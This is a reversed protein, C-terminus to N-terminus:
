QKKLCWCDRLNIQQCLTLDKVTGKELVRSPLTPALDGPFNQFISSALFLVHKGKNQDSIQSLQSSSDAMIHPSSLGRYQDATLMHSCTCYYNFPGNNFAPEACSYLTQLTHCITEAHSCLNFKNTCTDCEIPSVESSEVLQFLQYCNVLFAFLAELWFFFLSICGPNM